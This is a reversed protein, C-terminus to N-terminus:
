LEFEIDLKDDLLLKLIDDLLTIEEEKLEVEEVELKVPNVGILISIKLSLGSSLITRLWLM